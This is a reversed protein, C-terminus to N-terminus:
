IEIVYYLILSKRLEFVSLVLHLRYRRVFNFVRIISTNARVESLQRWLSREVGELRMMTRRPLNEKEDRDETCCSISLFNIGTWYTILTIM